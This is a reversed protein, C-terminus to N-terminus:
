LNASYCIERYVFSHAQKRAVTTMKTVGWNWDNSSVPKNGAWEAEEVAAASDGLPTWKKGVSFGVYCAILQMAM